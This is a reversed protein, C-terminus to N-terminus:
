IRDARGATPVRTRERLLPGPNKSRRAAVDAAVIFFVAYVVYWGSMAIQSGDLRLEVGGGHPVIWIVYSWFVLLTPVLLAWGQYWAFAMLPVCWVWHHSWSIPSVLFGTLAVVLVAAADGQRRYCYAASSMGAVLVVAVALTALAATDVTHGARVIWGRVSQNVSNELRGVRTPDFVHHTWYAWTSTPALLTSVLLTALLTVVAGLAARFRRTVVLYLIFIAPTVKLAAALGVGVGRLRSGEPLSFDWLVLCLILLNIQGFNNNLMVPESWLAVAALLPVAVHLDVSVSTLRRLSLYSALGVLGVNLLFSLAGAAVSPVLLLWMFMVAAFPPYTALGHVGPLPGYLDIGQSLAEAEARYVSIDAFHGPDWVLRLALYLGTSIACLLWSWRRTLRPGVRRPMLVPAEVVTRGRDSGPPGLPPHDYWSAIFHLHRKAEM